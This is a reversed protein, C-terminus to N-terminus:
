EPLTGSRDLGTTTGEANTAVLRYHYTGGPVLDAVRAAITGAPTDAAVSVAETTSGYGTTPGYEFRYTTALGSPDLWGHVTMGTRTRRDNWWTLGGPESVVDDGPLGPLRFVADATSATGTGLGSVVLRYHYGARPELGTLAIRVPTPTAAAALQVPATSSGYASTPGYEVWARPTASGTAVAATVVASRGAPDLAVATGTIPSTSTGSRLTVATYPSRSVRRWADLAAPSSTVRFQCDGDPTPHRNYWAVAKIEPWGQLTSALEDIWRGKRTPDSRDEASGVEAVFVPKPHDAAWGRFNSFVQAFSRWDASQCATYWNYGDVGLWDVVDDGPYFSEARSADRAFSYAMAIWTLSVNTVGRARYIGAWHRWAARFEAPTGNAEVDDEPEHHLTLLVPSGLAKFADAQRAIEDDRRGSAIESWRPALISVAPLRGRQVDDKTLTSIPAQDWRQYTRHLGMTRGTLTEFDRFAETRTEGPLADMAAGWYVGTSPVPVGGTSAAAAVADAAVGDAAPAEPGAARATGATGALLTLALAGVLVPRM